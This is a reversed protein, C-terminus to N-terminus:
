GCRTVCKDFAVSGGCKYNGSDWSCRTNTWCWKGRKPSKPNCYRWCRRGAMFRRGCGMGYEVFEAGKCKYLRRMQKIDTTSPGVRQGFSVGSKTAVITAKRNKSFAYPGYHMISGYDYPTGLSNIAYHKRFNSERGRIINNEIIRVYNDRDPRSQEHNFGLAHGLEHSAIGTYECGRGLSIKQWNGIRGLYSWCGRETVFYLYDRENTRWVFKICTTRTWVRMAERTARVARSNRSFTPSFWYPVIGNRWLNRTLSGRSQPSIRLDGEM